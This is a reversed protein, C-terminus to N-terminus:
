KPEQQTICHIAGGGYIIESCDIGVIKRDHFCSQIIKMAKSDNPDNFTSVLVVGNGIYFNSYSAPAKEGNDYVMHPMPLKIIEFSKGNQDTSNKLIQYNDDLAKFNEENSDDEYACVIKDLAVFRAIEDIHGDTHDNALGSKLWIVKSIGLNDRFINEIESKSLNPNRTLLCQETTLLTGSGNVDIAGSEMFMGSDITKTKLTENIEQWVDNDKLLDDFKEGYANYTWKVALINEDTDKAFSPLYDRTWVDAYDAQFIEVKEKIEPPINQSRTILKVKESGDLALIIKVYTKEVKQLREEDIIEDKQNLSGFTIQDYPWALWVSNHSEWEAPMRFNQKGSIDSM